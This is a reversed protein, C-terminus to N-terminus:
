KYASFSANKLVWNLMSLYIPRAIKRYLLYTLKNKFSSSPNKQFDWKKDIALINEDVLWEKKNDSSTNKMNATKTAALAARHHHIRM